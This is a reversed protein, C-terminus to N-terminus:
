KKHLWPMMGRLKGGVQEIQHDAEIRRTAKFGPYGAKAELIFNRAFTGEQIEQLVKKMEKKTEENVIRRGTVYDGYEA